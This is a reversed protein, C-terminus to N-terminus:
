VCATSYGAEQFVKGLTQRDTGILLGSKYSL